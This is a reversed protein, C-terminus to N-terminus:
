KWLPEYYRLFWLNLQVWYKFDIDPELRRQDLGKSKVDIESVSSDVTQLPSQGGIPTTKQALAAWLFVKWHPGYYRLFWLNLWFWIYWDSSISAGLLAQYFYILRDSIDVAVSVSRGASLKGVICLLNTHWSLIKKKKVGNVLFSFEKCGIWHYIIIINVLICRM